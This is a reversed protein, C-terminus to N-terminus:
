RKPPQYLIGSAYRQNNLDEKLQIAHEMDIGYCNAIVLVYYIVDWLEEDITNKIENQANHPLGKQIARSLEGVEETLKLFYDKVREPHHDKQKLYEQLYRIDSM